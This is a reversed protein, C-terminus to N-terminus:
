SSKPKQEDDVEKTSDEQESQKESQKESQENTDKEETTNEKNVLEAEQDRAKTSDLYTLLDSAMGYPREGLISVLDEADIKERELLLKGVAEVHHKHDRVLDETIRYAEDVMKRVEMDIVHATEQSYPKQVALDGDRPMPFSMHGVVSSMGYVTIQEYAMQTVRRLDDQAGTSLHDFFVTEAARGGLAVCMSDFIQEKKIIYKEEPLYQAYGLASSGRPVISVKLLPHAYKLFWGTVAHGAEHYAVIKKEPPSLIKNKKELGAIVRDIATEFHTLTISEAHGRAAVLAAENCVNAIDAGSFGPTLAALRGSYEDISQALKLPKMHVRFIAQRGKIDPNDLTIQRDFRGPRLLASDLVDARNTGALVVVNTSSSFGDMEVLLQNLTNDREDNGGAFGSRNRQKGVADIEDIFVICPAAKRAKAFLERVRSSGVGVFMEVFDSGSLSFFPVGAEGATAKALLTKGTGPPGVLLAGKPIRAGLMQFKEPRQLFSVFEMIEEKAEVLGAVDKFRTTIGKEPKFNKSTQAGMMGGLNRGMGRLALGLLTVGVLSFLLSVPTSDSEVLPKRHLVPIHNKPSIGMENQVDYVRREFAKDSGLRVKYLQESEDVSFSAAKKGTYILIKDVRREKLYDHIFQEMTVEEGPVMSGNLVWLFLGIMVVALIITNFSGKSDGSGMSSKVKDFPSGSGGKSDSKEGTKDHSAQQENESEVKKNLKETEKQLDKEVMSIKEAETLPKDEPIDERNLFFHEFGKPPKASRRKPKKPTKKSKKESASTPKSSVTQEDQDKKIDETQGSETNNQQDKSKEAEVKEKKLNSPEESFEIDIDIDKEEETSEKKDEPRNDSGKENTSYLRQNLLSLFPQVRKAVINVNKESYLARYYTRSGVPFRSHVAQVQRPPLFTSFARTVIHNPDSKSVNTLGRSINTLKAHSLRSM